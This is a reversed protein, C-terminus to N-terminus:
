SWIRPSRACRQTCARTEIATATQDAFTVAPAPGGAEFRSEGSSRGPDRRGRAGQAVAARCDDPGGAGSAAAAATLQPDAEVASTRRPWGLAAVAEAMPALRRGVPEGAVARM